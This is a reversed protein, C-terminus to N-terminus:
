DPVCRNLVIARLLGRKEFHKAEDCRASYIRICLQLSQHGVERFSGKESGSVDEDVVNGGIIICKQEVKVADEAQPGQVPFLNKRRKRFAVRMNQALPKL